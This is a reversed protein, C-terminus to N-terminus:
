YQLTDATITFYESFIFQDPSLTNSLKIRYNVSSPINTPIQWTFQGDNATAASIGTIEEDKRFLSLAVTKVEPSVFWRIRFQVGKQLIDGAKPTTVYLVNPNNNNNDSIIINTGAGPDTLNLKERCGALLALSFLFVFTFLKKNM